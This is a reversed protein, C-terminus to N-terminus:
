RQKTEQATNKLGELFLFSNSCKQAYLSLFDILRILGVSIHFVTHTKEYNYILRICRKQVRTSIIFPILTIKANKACM